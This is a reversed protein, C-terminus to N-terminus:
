IPISPSLLTNAFALAIADFADLDYSYDEEGLM